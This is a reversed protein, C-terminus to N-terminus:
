NVYNMKCPLLFKSYRYKTFKLRSESSLFVFQYMKRSILKDFDFSDVGSDINQTM